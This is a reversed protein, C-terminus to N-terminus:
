HQWEHGMIHEEANQIKVTAQLWYHEQWKSLEYQYKQKM